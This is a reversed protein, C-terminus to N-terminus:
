ARRERAPSSTSGGLLKRAVRRLYVAADSDPYASVVPKREVVATRVCEDHELAGLYTVETGLFDECATSIEFGVHRHEQTRTKNVILLPTFSSALERLERGAAADIEAVGQVLDRPSRM